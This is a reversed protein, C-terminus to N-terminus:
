TGRRGRRRHLRCRSRRRWRWNRRLQRIDKRVHVALVDGFRVEFAQQAVDLEIVSARHRGIPAILNVSLHEVLQDIVREELLFGLSAIESRGVGFDFRLHLGHTLGGPALLREGLREGFALHGSSFSLASAFTSIAM